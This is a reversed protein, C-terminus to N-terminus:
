RNPNTQGALAEKVTKPENSGTSTVAAWEGYYDPPRRDREPRSLVPDTLEDAVPQEDPEQDPFVVLNQM